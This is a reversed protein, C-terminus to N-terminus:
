KTPENKAASYSPNALQRIQGTFKPGLVKSLALRFSIRLKRLMFLVHILLKNSGHHIAIDAHEDLTAWWARDSIGALSMHGMIKPSHLGVLGAKKLRCLWDYDRVANAIQDPEMWDDSNVIGIFEGRSLAVGMNFADSIGNDPKSHWYSLQSAYRRIIDVTGDSSGGDILIYEINPYSQALVSNM